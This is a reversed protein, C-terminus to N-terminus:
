EKRVYEMVLQLQALISSETSKIQTSLQNALSSLERQHREDQKDMLRENSARAQELDDKWREEAAALRDSDAKSKIAEGLGKSEDRLMKFITAGLGYLLVVAGTLIWTLTAADM